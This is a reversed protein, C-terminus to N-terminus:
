LENITLQQGALPKNNFRGSAIIFVKEDTDFNAIKM